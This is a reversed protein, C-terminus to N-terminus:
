AEGARCLVCYMNGSEDIKWNDSSAHGCAADPALTPEVADMWKRVKELTERWEKDNMQVGDELDIEVYACLAEIEVMPIKM